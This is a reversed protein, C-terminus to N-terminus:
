LLTHWVFTKETVRKIILLLYDQYLQCDVRELKSVMLSCNFVDGPTGSPETTLAHWHEGALAASVWSVPETGPHPLDGPNSFPM